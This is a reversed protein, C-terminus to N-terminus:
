STLPPGVSSFFHKKGQLSIIKPSQDTQSTASTRWPKRSWTPGSRATSSSWSNRASRNTARSGIRTSSTSRGPHRPSWKRRRLRMKRFKHWRWEQSQTRQRTRQLPRWQIIQFLHITKCINLVNKLLVCHHLKKTKKHLKQLYDSFPPDNQLYDFYPLPTTWNTSRDGGIGSIQPEFGTMPLSKDFMQKNDVTSLLRFFSAPYPGNKLYDFCNKFNSHLQKM